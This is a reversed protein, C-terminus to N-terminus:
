CASRPRSYGTSSLTTLCESVKGGGCGDRGCSSTPHGEGRLGREFLAASAEHGTQLGLTLM